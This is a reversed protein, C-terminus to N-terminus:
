FFESFSITFIFASVSQLKIKETPADDRSRLNIPCRVISQGAATVADIVVTAAASVAVLAVVVVVVVASISAVVAVIVVTATTAATTASVSAVIVVTATAAASVSAVVAVIVVTATM